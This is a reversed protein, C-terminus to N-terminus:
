YFCNIIHSDSKNNTIFNVYLDYDTIITDVTDATIYTNLSQFQISQLLLNQNTAVSAIFSLSLNFLVTSAESKKRKKKKFQDQILKIEITM